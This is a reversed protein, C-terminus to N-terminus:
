RRADKRESQQNRRISKAKDELNVVEIQDSM